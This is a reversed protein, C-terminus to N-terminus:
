YANYRWSSFILFKLFANCPLNCSHQCFLCFCDSIIQFFENQFCHTQFFEIKTLLNKIKILLSYFSLKWEGDPGNLHLEFRFKIWKLTWKTWIEAIVQYFLIFYNPDNHWEFLYVMNWEVSSYSLWLNKEQLRFFCIINDYISFVKNSNKKWIFNNVYTLYAFIQKLVIPFRLLSIRVSYFFFVCVCNM